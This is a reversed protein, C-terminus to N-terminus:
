PGVAALVAEAVAMRARDRARSADGAHRRAECAKRYNDDAMAVDALLSAPIEVTFFPPTTMSDMM